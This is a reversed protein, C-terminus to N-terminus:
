NASDAHNDCDMKAMVTMMMNDNDDDYNSNVITMTTMKIMMKLITILTLRKQMVM